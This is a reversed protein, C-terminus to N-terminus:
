AKRGWMYAALCPSLNNHYLNDGTSETKRATGCKTGVTGADLFWARGDASGTKPTDVIFLHSHSASEGVALCNKELPLCSCM